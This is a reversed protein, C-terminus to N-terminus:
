IAAKNKTKEYALDILKLCLEEFTIGEIKAAKPLLSTSTLGPITNVELIYPEEDKLIIDVRSCGFCGLLKHASLAAEQMKQALDKNIQAPVIYETLGQQYKAEYDFFQKKPIIEIVCLAREDLIGVTMERGRVFEELVIRDDFSFALDIAEKLKEQSDIISLGISSGHTAPKIVLSPGLSYRQKMAEDYSHKDMELYRPVNLGNSEFIKRSAIKDMALRSADVGSGTYPLRMEELIEQIQGDEGFRGHLALFACDIRHSKILRINEQAGEVEIDIPVVDVGCQKLAEYVAKGSKLSIERESSPGGMLVGIRGIKHSIGGVEM